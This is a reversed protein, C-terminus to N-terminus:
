IECFLSSRKTSFQGFSKLQAQAFNHQSIAGVIRCNMTKLRKSGKLLSEFCKTFQCHLLGSLCNILLIKLNKNFYSM